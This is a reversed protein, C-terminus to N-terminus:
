SRMVFRPQHSKPWYLASAREIKAAKEVPYVVWFADEYARPLILRFRHEKSLIVYSARVEEAFQILQTGFEEEERLDDIEDYAKLLRFYPETLEDEVVM